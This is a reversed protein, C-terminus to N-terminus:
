QIQKQILDKLADGKLVSFLEVVHNLHGLIKNQFTLNCYEFHLNAHEMEFCWDKVHGHVNRITIQTPRTKNRKYENSSCLTFQSVRADVIILEECEETIELVGTM